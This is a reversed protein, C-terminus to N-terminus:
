SRCVSPLYIADIGASGCQWTFSGGTYSATLTVSKGQLPDAVGTTRFQATITCSGSSTGTTVQEVYKGSIESAKAIGGAAATSNDPCSSSQQIDEAIASKVGAMLSFAESAQARATYVFYAPIAIAALIGIITLVIMLEILTFGSQHKMLGEGQM